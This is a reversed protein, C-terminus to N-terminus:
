LRHGSVQVELTTTTVWATDLFEAIIVLLFTHFIRSGAHLLEFVPSSHNNKCAPCDSDQLAWATLPHLKCTLGSM